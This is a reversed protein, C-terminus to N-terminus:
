KSGGSGSGGSSGPGVEIPKLESRIDLGKGKGKKPEGGGRQRQVREQVRFDKFYEDGRTITLSAGQNSKRPGMYVKGKNWIDTYMVVPTEGGAGGKGSGGRILTATTTFFKGKGGRHVARKVYWTGSDKNGVGVIDICTKARLKPCGKLELTGTIPESGHHKNANSSRNNDRGKGDKTWGEASPWSHGQDREMKTGPVSSEKEGAMPSKPQSGGSGGGGSGMTSGYKKAVQWSNENMVPPRKGFDVSSGSGMDPKMGRAELESQIIQKNDGKKHNGRHQGGAMQQLPDRGIVVVTDHDKTLYNRDSDQAPLTAAPSLEESWGFRIQFDDGTNFADAYRLEPSALEVKLQSCKEEDDVVEWDIVDESVDRGGVTIIYVQDPM